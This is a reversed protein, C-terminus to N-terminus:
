ARALAARCRLLVTVGAMLSIVVLGIMGWGSLTPVQEPGGKIFAGGFSGSNYNFQGNGAGSALTLYKAEAPIALNLFKGRTENDDTTARHQVSGLIATDNSLILYATVAGPPQPHLDFRSNGMGAFATVRRVADAGHAGRLADLDYTIGAVAHIGVGKDFTQSGIAIPQTTEGGIRANLIQGWCQPPDLLDEPPFTYKVGASNIPMEAADILFVADVYSSTAEAVGALGQGDAIGIPADIFDADLLGTDPNIGIVAPSATGTGNGGAAIDGLDLGQAALPASLGFVLLWAVAIFASVSRFCTCM